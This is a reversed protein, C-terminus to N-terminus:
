TMAAPAAFDDEDDDEYDDDDFDIIGRLESVADPAADHWM